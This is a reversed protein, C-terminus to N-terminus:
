LLIKEAHDSVVKVTHFPISGAAKWVGFAEMDCIDAKVACIQRREVSAVVSEVTILREVTIDPIAQILANEQKENCLLESTCVDGINLHDALAGCTGVSLIRAPSCQRIVTSTHEFARRTGVGSRLIFIPQGLITGRILRHNIPVPKHVMKLLPVVEALLAGVILTASM